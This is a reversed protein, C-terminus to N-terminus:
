AEPTAEPQQEPQVVPPTQVAPPIHVQKRRKGFRTLLILGIGLWGLILWVLFGVVPILKILGFVLFGLLVAPLLTIRRGALSGLKQGVFMFIGAIGMWKLVVYTFFAFPILPIGILSLALLVYILPMGLVSFALGLFLAAPWRAPFEEALLEVREPVLAALVLVAFFMLILGLLIWWLFISILIELPHGLGPLTLGLPINVRDRGISAGPDDMSGAVAVLSGEIRTSESLTVDSLVAVVEGGVTGDLNFDGGVVVIDGTVRGLVDLTGAISTISGRHVTDAPIIMRDGLTVRDGRSDFLVRDPETSTVDPLVAEAADEQAFAPLLGVPLLLLTLILATRRM